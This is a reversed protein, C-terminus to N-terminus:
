LAKPAKPPASNGMPPPKPPEGGGASQFTNNQFEGSPFVPTGSPPPPDNLDRVAFPFPTLPTVGMLYGVAGQTLAIAYLCAPGAEVVAGSQIRVARITSRGDEGRVFVAPLPPPPPDVRPGGAVDQAWAHPASTTVVLLILVILSLPM